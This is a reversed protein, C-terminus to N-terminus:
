RGVEVRVPIWRDIVPALRHEARWEALLADLAQQLAADERAVAWALYEETLPRFLGILDDDDPGMTFHWITPADHVFFDIRGARLSRVGDEPTDFAYSESRPLRTRVYTEGTTDAVFGVRVGPRHIAAPQGFRALDARRILALQGVRLWPGTFRVREAREPTISMGSMVVDIRGQELAPILEARDLVVFEARRNLAEAAMRALEPEVGYLGQEDRYVIPPYDPAVGIRLPAPGPVVRTWEGCGTALCLVGAITAILAAALRIPETRMRGGTVPGVCVYVM